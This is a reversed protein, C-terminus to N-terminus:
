ENQELFWDCHKLKNIWAKATNTYMAGIEALVDRNRLPTPVKSKGIFHLLLRDSGDANIAVSVTIRQKSQKKDKEKKDVTLSDRPETVDWLPCCARLWRGSADGQASIQTSVEVLLASAAPSTLDIVSSMRPTTETYTAPSMASSAPLVGIPQINKVRQATTCRNTTVRHAIAVSRRFLERPPKLILFRNCMVARHTKPTDDCNIFNYQINNSM